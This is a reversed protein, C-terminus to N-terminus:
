AGMVWSNFEDGNWSPRSRAVGDKSIVGSRTTARVCRQAACTCVPPTQFRALIGLLLLFLLFFTIFPTSCEGLALGGREPHKCYVSTVQDTYQAVPM